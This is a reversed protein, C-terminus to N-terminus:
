RTAPSRSFLASNPVTGREGNPKRWQFSMVSLRPELEAYDIRIQHVGPSLDAVGSRTQATHVGGNDAVLTGDVYLWSADDSQLYLTYLGGEGPPIVLFGEWRVSFVQSAVPHENSWDFQIVPDVRELGVPGSWDRTAYYRGLLGDGRPPPTPSPPTSQGPRCAVLLAAGSLPLALLRRRTWAM